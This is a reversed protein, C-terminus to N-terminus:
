AKEAIRFRGQHVGRIEIAQVLGLSHRAYPVM